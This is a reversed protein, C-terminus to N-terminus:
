CIFCIITLLGNRETKGDTLGSQPLIKDLQSKVTKVIIDTEINVADGSKAAGLTTRKLTEPIIAVTFSEKDM